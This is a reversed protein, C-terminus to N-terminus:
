GTTDYGKALLAERLKKRAEHVRWAVTGEPVDLIAAVEAHSLGDVCVLLLTVRLAESLADIGECLAEYGERRILGKGPDVVPAASIRELRPDHTNELARASKKGRLANLAVNIAIRYIWTYPESRGDFKGLARYARVFAEQTVDEAASRDRLMHAVVRYIRAQYRGMLRGFAVTDGARARTLLERDAEPDSTETPRMDSRQVNMEGLSAPDL